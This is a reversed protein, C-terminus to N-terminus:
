HTIAHQAVRLNQSVDSVVLIQSYAFAVRQRLQDAGDIADIMWIDQRPGSLSLSKPISQVYPLHSAGQRSFQDDVWGEIGMREVDAIDRLTAGFTAQALLRAAAKSGEGPPEPREAGQVVISKTATNALGNTDTVTLLVSYTGANSYTISADSSTAASGDGFDWAYSAISAPAVGSVTSTKVVASPAQTENVQVLIETAATASMGNSDVVSLSVRYRGPSAYTTSANSSVSTDGNGFDWAYSAIKAPAFASSADASFSVNLPASGSVTTSEIVAVPLFDEESDDSFSINDLRFSGGVLMGNVAVLSNGSEAFAVDAALNRSISRWGDGIIESGLGYYVTNNNPNKLSDANSNTYILRRTGFDTDAYIVVFFAEGTSMDWSMTHQTRNNWGTAPSTGGLSYTNKRGDGETGIVRSGHEADFVSTISAGSPSNDSIFWDGTGNEADSYVTDETSPPPDEPDETSPPPDDTDETSTPADDTDEALPPPDDTRASLGINDLRLNGLISIGNVALLQNGPEGIEIDRYLDRHLDRWAGDTISRGLGFGISDNNPNKLGDSNSQTYILRRVGQTTAVHVVFAFSESTAMQWSLLSESSNNWSDATGTGGLRYGNLRGGEGLTQIVSSQLQADNVVGVSAGVPTNDYVFWGDSGNEADSYVTANATASLFLSIWFILFYRAVTILPM